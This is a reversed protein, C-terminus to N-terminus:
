RKLYRELDEIGQRSGVEYFREEMELGALDGQELLRRYVGALDAPEDVPLAEFVEKQFV